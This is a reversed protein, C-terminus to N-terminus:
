DLTLLKIESIVGVILSQRTDGREKEKFTRFHIQTGVRGGHILIVM